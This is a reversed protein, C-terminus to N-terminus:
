IIHPKKRKTFILLYPKESNKFLANFVLSFSSGLLGKLQIKALPQELNEAIQKVKPSHLYRNHLASQSL